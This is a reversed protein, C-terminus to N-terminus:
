AGAHRDSTRSTRRKTARKKKTTANVGKTEDPSKSGALRAVKGAAPTKARRTKAGRGRAEIEPQAGQSMELGFLESLDDGDVMARLWPCSEAARQVPLLLSLLRDNNAAGAYERLAQGLPLHQAKAHASLRTTYTALFAFPAGEDKRNEALNFHVRGLETGFAVDLEEWLARLVAPKLYEAGTMPPPASALSELDEAAPATVHVKTGREEADPLTCLATVYQTGLERWYSLVPPLPTGIEGAGLQLLGHGSGQGFASRLREALGPDLSPGDDAQGLILRGHRTLVPALSLAGM